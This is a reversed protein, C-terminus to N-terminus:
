GVLSSVVTQKSPADLTIAPIMEQETDAVVHYTHQIGRGTNEDTIFEERVLEAVATRFSRRRWEPLLGRITAQTFSTLGAKRVANLLTTAPVGLASPESGCLLSSLDLAIQFDREDAIIHGDDRLRQYQHLLASAAIVGLFRTQMGPQRLLEDPFHIREAFPIIVPYRQLLRQLNHCRTMMSQRTADHQRTPKAYQAREAALVHQVHEASTDAPIHCCNFGLKKHQQASTAAIVSLPGRIETILARSSGSLNHRPVVSQSLAGRKQLIQLALVVENTLTATDDILLLKHRLANAAQYSLAANTLRSVHVLDESPTIEALYNLQHSESFISDSVRLAWLPAPSKRSIAALVLLRKASDEGVWGLTTLDAIMGNLLDGSRLRQLASERAEGTPEIVPDSEDVRDSEVRLQQVATLLLPLHGAIVDSAIGFRLAANGAFRNRAASVALDIVESYVQGNVRSVVSLRTTQDDHPVEVVYTALGITFTARDSQQDHAVLTLTVIAVAESQSEKEILMIMNGKM